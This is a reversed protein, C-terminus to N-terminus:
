EPESSPRTINARSRRSLPANAAPPWPPPRDPTRASSNLLWASEPPRTLSPSTPIDRDARVTPSCSEEIRAGPASPGAAAGLLGLLLGHYFSETSGDRHISIIRRLFDNALSRADRLRGESLAAAVKIAESVYGPNERSFFFAIKREFCELVERNPIRLLARGQEDDGVKTLYGTAHLMSLLLTSSHTQNLEDFSVDESIRASVTEGALLRRLLSLHADDAFDIFELVIDNRSTDIWFNGYEPRGAERSLSCFSMVDWPCYMATGAFRYGDYHTRVEDACASLGLDALVRETEDETFGFATSCVPTTMARVEFQNLGTFASEKALRLCGTLVAKELNPNDKLGKSLLTRVLDLM